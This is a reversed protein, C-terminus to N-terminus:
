AARRRERLWAEVESMRFRVRAGFRYCPMGEAVMLEVWRTTFGYLDAVYQKTVYPEHEFREERRNHHTTM